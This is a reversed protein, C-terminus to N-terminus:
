RAGAEVIFAASNTSKAHVADAEKQVALRYWAQAQAANEFEFVALRESMRM